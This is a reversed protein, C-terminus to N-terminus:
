QHLKTLLFLLLHYHVQQSNHEHTHLYTCPSRQVSGQYHNIIYTEQLPSNIALGLINTNSISVAGLRAYTHLKKLVFTAGAITFSLQVM